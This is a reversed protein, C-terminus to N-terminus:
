QITELPEELAKVVANISAINSYALCAKRIVAVEEENLGVTKTTKGLFEALSGRLLKETESVELGQPYNLLAEIIADKIKLDAIVQKVFPKSTSPNILPSDFNYRPM